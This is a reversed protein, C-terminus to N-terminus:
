KAKKITRKVKRYLLLLSNIVLLVTLGTDALVAVYMMYSADKNLISLILEALFVAVKIILAFVINFTATHRSMKAIRMADYVKAPDDNMIIVDANEVAIDSGIGGMAIGIDSRVISPADNIGDGIFAVAKDYNEMEKELIQTKQEPLLGSHFYDIGLKGCIERANEEKDGTLLTISVGEGHLLDVMPQADDKVKDALVVYGVYKNNLVCYVVSGNECAMEYDINFAKMLKDGGALITNGKWTTKTGKGAIEEFNVQESALIKTNIDHCVAKGIPHTSLCEAAQVYSLLDEEKVGKVPVVKQISFSGHTLTGTKDTILKGLSALEDLYNAGKIVIGNKSALGVGSFYALPVSIVIACPCGIVLIELSTHIWSSWSSTVFGGILLTLIAVGVVIPTYWKAFKAVFEDAKSKKEGGSTVLDIIKNVTSDAYAKNVKVKLTGSKLLCGSFVEKNIGAKVPVYEGTLSSTDIFGEGEVIIGDTPIQEGSTVLIIDDIKLEEPKVVVIGENTVLNAKDVRLEVASMIASKSKNSAIQEIINGVQFLTIVMVAEMTDDMAFRFGNVNMISNEGNILGILSLVFSGLSAVTILMNHDLINTRNKIHMIVKFFCDYGIFLIAFTYIGFRVWELGNNTLLFTCILTLIVATIIRGLLFFMKPTWIKTNKVAKSNTDESINLPDQEVEKIVEELQKCNWPDSEFTIYLKNTSFDMHAYSVNDQKAIHAEAKAACSPCDFGSVNFIKKVSKNNKEKIYLENHEVEKIVKALQEENWPKDKYTIFLKNGSFDLRVYSINEQKSLHEETKAACHPCDFGNIEYVKKTM